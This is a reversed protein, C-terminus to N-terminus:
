LQVNKAYCCGNLIPITDFDSLLYVGGIYLPPSHYLMFVLRGKVWWENGTSYQVVWCYCTCTRRSVPSKGYSAIVWGVTGLREMCGGVEVVKVVIWLLTLLGAGGCGLRRGPGRLGVLVLFGPHIYGDVVYCSYRGKGRKM